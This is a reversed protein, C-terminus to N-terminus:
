GAVPPASLRSIGLERLTGKLNGFFGMTAEGSSGGEKLSGLLEPADPM